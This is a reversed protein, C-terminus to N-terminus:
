QILELQGPHPPFKRGVWLMLFLIIAMLIFGVWEKPTFPKIELKEMLEKLTM